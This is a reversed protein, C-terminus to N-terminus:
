EPGPMAGEEGEERHGWGPLPRRLSTETTSAVAAKRAEDAVATASSSRDLAKSQMSWSTASVERPMADMRRDTSDETTSPCSRADTGDAAEGGRSDVGSTAQRLAVGNGRSHQGEDQGGPASHRLGTAEPPGENIITSKGTAPRISIM